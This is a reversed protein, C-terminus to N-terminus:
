DPTGFVEFARQGVADSFPFRAPPLGPVEGNPMFVLGDDAFDMKFIHQMSDQASLFAFLLSMFDSEPFSSYTEALMAIHEDLVADTCSEVDFPAHGDRVMQAAMAGVWWGFRDASLAGCLMLREISEAHTGLLPYLHWYDGAVEGIPHSEPPANRDMHLYNSFRGKEGILFDPGTETVHALYHAAIFAREQVTMLRLDTIEGPLPKQNPEVTKELLAGTGAEHQSAPMKCLMITDRITLEQLQINLRRTRLPTFLIM